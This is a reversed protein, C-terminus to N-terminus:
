QSVSVCRGRQRTCNLLAPIWQNGTRVWVIDCCTQVLCYTNPGFTNQWRGTGPLCARTRTTAGDVARVVLPCIQQSPKILPSVNGVECPGHPTFFVQQELNDTYLSATIEDPSVDEGTDVFGSGPITTMQDVLSPTKALLSVILLPLIFLQM